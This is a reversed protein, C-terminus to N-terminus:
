RSCSKLHWPNLTWLIFICITCSAVLATGTHAAPKTTASPNKLYHMLRKLSLSYHCISVSGKEPLACHTPCCLMQHHEMWPWAIWESTGMTVQSVPAKMIKTCTTRLYGLCPFVHFPSWTIFYAFTNFWTMLLVTTCHNASNDLFTSCKIGLSLAKRHPTQM